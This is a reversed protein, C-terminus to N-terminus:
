LLLGLSRAYAIPHKAHKSQNCPQCLYQLNARANSGGLALPVIHDVHKKAKSLSARCYACRNGQAKLIESLDAATHTCGSGRKQARRLRSAIRDLEHHKEPNAKRQRADSAKIKEPNAKRWRASVRRSIAMAKEPNAKRWRDNSAKVKEPDARYRRANSAKNSAKVKEPNTNRWREDYAKQKGPNAKRWRENLARACAM